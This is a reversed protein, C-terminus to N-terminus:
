SKLKEVAKRKKPPPDSAQWASAKAFTTVRKGNERQDRGAEM